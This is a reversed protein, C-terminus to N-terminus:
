SAVLLVPCPAQKVLAKAARRSLLGSVSGRRRQPVVILDSGEQEAARCVERVPNGSAQQNRMRLQPFSRHLPRLHEGPDPVGNPDFVSRADLVPAVQLVILEADHTDALKAAALLAGAGRESTPTGVLIRTIM